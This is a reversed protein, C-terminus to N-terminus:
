SNDTNFFYALGNSSSIFLSSSDYISAFLNSLNSCYKTSNSSVDSIGGVYGIIHAFYVADNYKRLAQVRVDIGILEDGYEALSANSEESIDYAITVPMYQQYRNMWLKYRCALIKLRDEKSYDPSIEFIEDCLYNVVDDATANKQKDEL